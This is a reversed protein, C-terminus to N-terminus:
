VGVVLDQIRKLLYATEEDTLSSSLNKVRAMADEKKIQGQSLQKFLEAGFIVCNMTWQNNGM